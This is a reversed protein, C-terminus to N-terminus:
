ATARIERVVRLPSIHVKKGSFINNMFFAYTKRSIEQRIKRKNITRSRHKSKILALGKHQLPLPLLFDGSSIKTSEHTKWFEDYNKQFGNQGVVAYGIQNQLSVGVITKIGLSLAVGELASILLVTPANDNFVRSSKAIVDLSEKAGQIRSVYLIQDDILGFYRGQSFTFSVTYITDGNVNFVLSLPGETEYPFASILRIEYVNSDRIESWCKLGDRFILRLAHYPFNNKFYKYHNTLIELRNETSLSCSLYKSLYIYYTRNAIFGLSSFPKLAKNLRIHGPM